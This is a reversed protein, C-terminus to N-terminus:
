VRDCWIAAYGPAAEHSHRIPFQHAPLWARCAADVAPGHTEVLLRRIHPAQEGMGKLVELEAGEVDIKLFDPPPLKKQAVLDAISFVPVAVEKKLSGDKPRPQDQLRGGRTDTESFEFVATGSRSGIAWPFAEAGPLNRYNLRCVELNTPLPEFGYFRAKPYHTAYFLSAMGIHAGIDYIVEPDLPPLEPPILVHRSSFFEVFTSMDLGNDRVHVRFCGPEATRTSFCLLREAAYRRWGRCVLSPKIGAHYFLRVRERLSNGRRCAFGLMLKQWAARESLRRVSTKTM